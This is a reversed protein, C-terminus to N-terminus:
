VATAFGTSNQKFGGTYQTKFEEETLDAFKNVGMIYTVEGKEYRENHENIKDLNEKFIAKRKAEEDANYNKKHQSQLIHFFPNLNLMIKNFLYNLLCSM